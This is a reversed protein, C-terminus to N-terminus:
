ASWLELLQRFSALDSRGTRRGTQISQALAGLKGGAPTPTRGHRSSGFPAEGSGTFGSGDLAIRHLYSCARHQASGM